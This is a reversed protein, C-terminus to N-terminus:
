EVPFRFWFTREALAAVCDRKHNDDTAVSQPFVIDAHFRNEDLPSAQVESDIGYARVDRVTIAVWGQLMGGNQKSRKQAIDAVEHLLESPLRDTSVTWENKRPRLARARRNVNGPNRRIRKAIDENDISRGITEHETVPGLASTSEGHSMM